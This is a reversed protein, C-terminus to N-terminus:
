RRWEGYRFYDYLAPDFNEAIFRAVSQCSESECDDCGIGDFEDNIKCLRQWIFKAAKKWPVPNGSEFGNRIMTAAETLVANCKAMAAENEADTDGLLCWDNAGPLWLPKDAVKHISSQLPAAHNRAMYERTARRFIESASQGSFDSFAAVDAVFQEDAWFNVKKRSTAEVNKATQNKAM